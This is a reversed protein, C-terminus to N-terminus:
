RDPLPPQIQNIIFMIRAPTDPLKLEIVATVKLQLGFAAPELSPHFDRNIGELHLQWGIRPAYDRLVSVILETSKPM